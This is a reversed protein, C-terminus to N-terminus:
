TTATKKMFHRRKNELYDRDEGIDQENETFSAHRCCQIIM